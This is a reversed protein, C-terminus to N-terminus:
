NQSKNIFIINNNSFSFCVVASTPNIHTERDKERELNNISDIKHISIRYM